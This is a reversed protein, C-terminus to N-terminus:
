RLAHVLKTARGSSWTDLRIWSGDTFAIKVDGKSAGFERRQAGQVVDRSVQWLIEAPTTATVRNPGAGALPTRDGGPGCRSVGDLARGEAQDGRSHPTYAPGAPWGALEAQIDSRAPDRFWCMGAVPAAFGSAFSISTRVCRRMPTRTGTWPAIRPRAVRLLPRAGALLRVCSWKRCATRSFGNARGPGAPSGSAVSVSDTCLRRVFPSLLYLIM